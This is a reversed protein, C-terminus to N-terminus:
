FLISKGYISQLMWVLINILTLILFSDIEAEFTYKEPHFYAFCSSDITAALTFVTCADNLAM